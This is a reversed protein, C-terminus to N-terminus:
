EAYIYKSLICHFLASVDIAILNIGLNVPSIPNEPFKLICHITRSYPKEQKDALMSAIRKYIITATTDMGGSTSFVLPSFSGHKIERVREDYARRKEM